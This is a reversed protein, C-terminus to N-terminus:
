LSDLLDVDESKLGGPQTTEEEAFMTELDIDIGTELEVISKDIDRLLSTALTSDYENKLKAQEEMQHLMDINNRLIEIKGQVEIIKNSLHDSIKGNGMECKKAIRLAQAANKKKAEAVTLRNRVTAKLTNLKSLKIEEGKSTMYPAGKAELAELKKMKASLDNFVANTEKVTQEYGSLNKHNLTASIRAKKQAEKMKVLLKEAEKIKIEYKGIKNNIMKVVKEYAVSSQTCAQMTLAALSSLCFCIFWKNM